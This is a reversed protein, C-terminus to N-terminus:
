RTYWRFKGNRGVRIWKICLNWFGVTEMTGTEDDAALPLNCDPLVYDSETRQVNCWTWLTNEAMNPRM